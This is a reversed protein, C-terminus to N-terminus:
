RSPASRRSGRRGTSTKFFRLLRNGEAFVDENYVRIAGIVKNWPSPDLEYGRATLARAVSARELSSLTAIWDCSPDREQCQAEALERDLRASASVGPQRPVAAPPPVPASPAVQAHARASGALLACVL